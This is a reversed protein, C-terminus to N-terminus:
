PTSSTRATRTRSSSPRHRVRVVGQGDEGNDDQRHRADDTKTITATLKTGPKLDRVGVEKGDITARRSEPINSFTRLEGTSMKVVLTNGEVKVM